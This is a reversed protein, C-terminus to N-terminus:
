DSPRQNSDLRPLWKSNTAEFLEMTPKSNRNLALEFRAHEQRAEPLAQIIPKVYEKAEIDLKGDKLYFNSGLALLIEKKKEFNGNEFWEKAHAAFSFTKEATDIWKSQNEHLSKVQEVISLQESVLARKQLKFEEDSLLEGSTNESCIKLRLLNDLQKSVEELRKQLNTRAEDRVQEENKSVLHLYKLTWELIKENFKLSGLWESIQMTLEKEEVSKQICKFDRRKKTCHYYVYTKVSADSKIYKLKKEATIFCGCDACRLLGTFAFNNSIKSRRGKNGLLSQVREFEARSIMPEHSGAYFEGDFEFEGYYFPNTFLKYLGSRSLMKGGSNRRKISKLGLETSAIDLIRPVSYTGSLMLDWLKRTLNWRDLDKVIYKEGKECYKNNLYGLPAVGPFWGKECKSKMGRKTNRSLDLIFQNAMGFEVSMMLVNDGPMYEREPTIINKILGQQLMWNISGGDVPNRALRDLKWCMIGDAKKNMLADLMTNFIPRGPSKASASERLVEYDKIGKSKALEVLVKEQDDISQIQRNADESSKRCYIFFKMVQPDIM